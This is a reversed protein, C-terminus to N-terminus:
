ILSSQGKFFFLLYRSLIHQFCLLPLLELSWQPFLFEGVHEDHMETKQFLFVRHCPLLFFTALRSSLSKYASLGLPRSTEVWPSNETFSGLFLAWSNWTTGYSRLYVSFYKSTFNPNTWIWHPPCYPFTSLSHPYLRFLILWSKIVLLTNPIICLVFNLFFEPNCNHKIRGEPVQTAMSSDCGEESSQYSRGAHSKGPACM